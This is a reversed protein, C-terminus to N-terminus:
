GKQEIYKLLLLQDNMKIEGDSNIDGREFQEGELTIIETTHNTLLELDKNDIVGDYNIDGKGYPEIIIKESYLESFLIEYNNKNTTFSHEKIEGIYEKNDLNTLIEQIIKDNLDSKQNNIIRDSQWALIDMQAREKAEAIETEKKAQSAQTLIGNEGTLMAITLGALILLVIITIVLAILTIGIDNKFIKRM